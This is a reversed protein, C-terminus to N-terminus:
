RIPVQEYALPLLFREQLRRLYDVGNNDIATEEVVILRTVNPTGSRLTLDAPGRYGM